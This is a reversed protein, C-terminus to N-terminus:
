RIRRTMFVAGGECCVLSVILLGSFLTVDECPTLVVSRLSGTSFDQLESTCLRPPRDGKPRPTDAIRPFIRSEQYPVATARASVCCVRLQRLVEEMGGRNRSQHAEAGFNFQSQHRLENTFLQESKSALSEEESSRTRERGSLRERVICGDRPRPTM